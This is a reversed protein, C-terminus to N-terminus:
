LKKIKMFGFYAFMIVIIMYLYYTPLVRMMGYVTAVELVVSPIKGISSALFFSWGSIATLSAGATVLGSPVFPLLRLLIITTFVSRTPKSQIKGWFSSSKWTPKIKSFGWRYFYFGVIVGFIEGFLSLFTGINLGFMDINLTTLFVSPIFGIVSSVFNLLLMLIVQIETPSHKIIELLEQM